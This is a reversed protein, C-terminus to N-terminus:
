GNLEGRLWEMVDVEPKWGIVSGIKSINARTTHMEGKREPLYTQNDSILNAIDQVSYDKGSGVNFVEGTQDYGDM